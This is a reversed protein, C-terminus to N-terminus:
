EPSNTKTSASKKAGSNKRITENKGTWGTLKAKDTDFTVMFPDKTFSRAIGEFELEGGPEMRGPLSGDLKLIVDGAPNEIALTLEKPKVAPNASVLRGKLRPVLADKMKTEFYTEGDADTLAARLDKWLAREPHTKDFMQEAEIREKAIQAASKIQFGPPPLPKAKADALLQALGEDSGHYKVYATNLYATLNKRDSPPLSGPGDYSAAHAFCYLAAPQKEPRTKNQELMADALWYSVQGQKPDLEIAKRLEVEARAFDKRQWDIWGATRQAFIRMEPKAKAADADTMEAPRNETSYIGDLNALITTTAREAVDLDAPAPPDLQYIAGVITSLAFLNNPNDRLVDVAANFSERNRGLQRYTELYLQRRVTALESQPYQKSWKDLSELWIKPDETQTIPKYLDYEAPDKWDPKKKDQAAVRPTMSSVLAAGAVVTAASARLLLSLTRAWDSFSM